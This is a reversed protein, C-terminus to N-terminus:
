AINIFAGHPGFNKVIEGESLRVSVRFHVFNEGKRSSPPSTGWTGGGRSAWPDKVNTYGEGGQHHNQHFVQFGM